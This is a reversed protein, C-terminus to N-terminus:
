WTWWFDNWQVHKGHIVSVFDITKITFLFNGILIVCIRCPELHCLPVLEQLELQSFMQLTHIFCIWLVRRQPILINVNRSSKCVSYYVFTYQAVNRIHIQLEPSNLDSAASFFFRVKRLIYKTSVQTPCPKWIWM